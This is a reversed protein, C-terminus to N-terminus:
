EADIEPGYPLRGSQRIAATAADNRADDPTRLEAADAAIREAVDARTITAQLYAAEGPAGDRGTDFKYRMNARGGNRSLAPRMNGLKDALVHVRMDDPLGNWRGRTFVHLAADRLREAVGDLGAATTEGEWELRDVERGNDASWIAAKIHWERVRGDNLAAAGKAVGRQVLASRTAATATALVVPRSAADGLQLAIADVLSLAAATIPDGAVSPRATAADDRRAPSTAAEYRINSRSAAAGSGLKLFAM